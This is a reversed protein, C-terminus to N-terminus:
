VESPFTICISYASFHTSLDLYVEEEDMKYNLEWKYASYYSYHALISNDEACFFNQSGFEQQGFGVLAQIVHVFMNSHCDTTLYRIGSIDHESRSRFRFCICFLEIHRDRPLNQRASQGLKDM